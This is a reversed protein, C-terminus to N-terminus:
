RESFFRDSVKVLRDAVEPAFCGNHSAAPLGLFGAGKGKLRRLAEPSVLRDQGFSAVFVGFKSAAHRLEKPDIGKQTAMGMMAELSRQRRITNKKADPTRHYGANHERVEEPSDKLALGHDVLMKSIIPFTEDTWRVLPATLELAGLPVYIGGILVANMVDVATKHAGFLPMHDPSCAPALMLFDAQGQFGAKDLALAMEGTAAGGMSHGVVKIQKGGLLGLADLTELIQFGYQKPTYPASADTRASGDGGFGDFAISLAEQDTWQHATGDWIEKNSQFGHVLATLKPAAQTAQKLMQRKAALPLTKYNSVAGDGLPITLKLKVDDSAYDEALRKVRSTKGLLGGLSSNVVAFVQGDRTVFDIDKAAVDGYDFAVKGKMELPPHQRANALLSPFFNPHKRGLEKVGDPDGLLKGVKAQFDRSSKIPKDDLEVLRTAELVAKKEANGLDINKFARQALRVGIPLKSDTVATKPIDPALWEGASSVLTSDFSELYGSVESQVAKTAAVGVQSTRKLASWGSGIIQSIM